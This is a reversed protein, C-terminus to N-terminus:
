LEQSATGRRYPVYAKGAAIARGVRTLLTIDRIPMQIYDFFGRQFALAEEEVSTRRSVLIVPIRRTEAVGQLSTFLAFGDSGPMEKTTIVLQPVHLQAMQFGDAADVAQLVHYGEAILPAVLTERDRYDTEVVLIANAHSEVAENLYNKAIAMMISKTTSIVPVVRVGLNKAVSAIIEENTPDAMALALTGDKVQLPFIRHDFATEMTILNLVERPITHSAIDSVIKYGYQIALAKAIEQGTLLGLDELTQGFRRHSASAISIIREVILPTLINQQILIEGLKLKVKSHM